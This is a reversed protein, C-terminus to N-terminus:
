DSRDTIRVPYPVPSFSSASSSASGLSAGRVMNSGAGSALKDKSKPVLYYEDTLDSSSTADSPKASFKSDKSPPLLFVSQKPNEKIDLTNKNQKQDIENKNQNQEVVPTSSSSSHKVIFSTNTVIRRRFQVNYTIYVHGLYITGTSTTSTGSIYSKICLSNTNASATTFWTADNTSNMRVKCSVFDSLSGMRKSEHGFAALDGTLATQEINSPCLFYPSAFNLTSNAPTGLHVTPCYNAELGLVRFEQYLGAYETFNTLGTVGSSPYVLNNSWTGSTITCALGYGNAISVDVLDDKEKVQIPGVYKVASASVNQHSKHIRKSKKHTKPM